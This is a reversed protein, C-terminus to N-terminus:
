TSINWSNGTSSDLKYRIVGPLLFGSKISSRHDSNKLTPTGIGLIKATCSWSKLLIFFRFFQSQKLSTELFVMIKVRARQVALTVKFFTQYNNYSMFLVFYGTNIFFLPLHCYNKHFLYM